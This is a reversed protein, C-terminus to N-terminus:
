KLNVRNLEVEVFARPPIIQFKKYKQDMLRILLSFNHQYGEHLDILYSILRTRAIAPIQDAEYFHLVIKSENKIWGTDVYAFFTHRESRATIPLDSSGDRVIYEPMDCGNKRMVKTVDSVIKVLLIEAERRQNPETAYCDSVLLWFLSLIFVFIPSQKM